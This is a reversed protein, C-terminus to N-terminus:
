TRKRKEPRRGARLPEPRKAGPKPRVFFEAVSVNLARALRDLLDVSINTEEREIEGVYVRDMGAEDALREQTM